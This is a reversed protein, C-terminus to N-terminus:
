EKERGFSQERTKEKDKKLKDAWKAYPSIDDICEKLPHRLTIGEKKLQNEIQPIFNYAKEPIVIDMDPKSMLQEKINEVIEKVFLEEELKKREEKTLIRRIDKSNFKDLEDKSIRNIKIDKSSNDIKNNTLKSLEEESIVAVLKNKFYVAYFENTNM